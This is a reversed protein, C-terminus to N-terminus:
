FAYMKSDNKLNRPIFLSCLVKVLIFFLVMILIYFYNCINYLYFYLPTQQAGGVGHRLLCLTSSLPQSLFAAKIAPLSFLWRHSRELLLVVIPEGTSFVVFVAGVPRQVMDLERVRSDSRQLSVLVDLYRSSCVAASTM